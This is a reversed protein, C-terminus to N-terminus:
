IIQGEKLETIKRAPYDLIDALIAESPEGLLPSRDQVKGLTRRLNVPVGM